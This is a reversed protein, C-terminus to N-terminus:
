RVFIYGMAKTEKDGNDPFCHGSNGCTNTVNKLYCFGRTAADSGGFGIFSDSSVCNNENNGILGIRTRAFKLNIDNAVVNFGEKNCNTQLSSGNILSKWKQRGLSTARYKGDAILDYLSSAPYSISVFKLDNGVKMGVCLEKFSTSWYTPLKTEQDDLESLGGTPNYSQKNQWYSSNYHFTEKKSFLIFYMICRKSTSPFKVGFNFKITFVSFNFLEAHMFAM